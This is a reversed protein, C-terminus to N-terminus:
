IRIVTSIVFVRRLNVISFVPTMLRILIAIPCPLVLVLLVMGCAGFDSRPIDKSLLRRIENRVGILTFYRRLLELGAHSTLGEHAYRLTLDANVRHRLDSTRLRM